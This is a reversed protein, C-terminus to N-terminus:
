RARGVTLTNLSLSGDNMTLHGFSSNGIITSLGVNTAVVSAGASLTASENILFDGGSVGEVRLASNTVRLAGGTNISFGNLIRLPTAAGANTLQLINLFSPASVTLNSITLTAFNAANTTTADITVTKGGIGAANTIVNASDSSVPVGASWNGATEWKGSVSNTWSNTTLVAYVPTTLFWLAVLASLSPTYCKM